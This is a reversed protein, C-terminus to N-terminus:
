QPGLEPAQMGMMGAAQAAPGLATAPTAPVMLMQGGPVMQGPVPRCRLHRLGPRAIQMTPGVGGLAAVSAAHVGTVLPVHGALPLTGHGRAEDPMEAAPVFNAQRAPTPLPWLHVMGAESGTVFENEGAACCSIAGEVRSRYKSVCGMPNPGAHWCFVGGEADVSVLHAGSRSVSLALGVALCLIFPHRRLCGGCYRSKRDIHENGRPPAPPASVQTIHAHHNGAYKRIPAVPAGRPDPQWIVSDHAGPLASPADPHLSRITYLPRVHSGSVSYVIITHQPPRAPLSAPRLLPTLVPRRPHPPLCAPCPCPVPLAPCPCPVPLAPCPCPLAPCTAIPPSPSSVDTASSAMRTGSADFALSTIRGGHVDLEDSPRHVVINEPDHYRTVDAHVPWVKLNFDYGASCMLKGDPSIALANVAGCHGQWEAVRRFQSPGTMLSFGKIPYDTGGAIILGLSPHVALSQVSGQCDFYAVRRLSACDYLHVRYDKSASVIMMPGQPPALLAVQTVADTHGVFEQVLQPHTLQLINHIRVCGLPGSDAMLSFAPNVALAAVGLEQIASSGLQRDKEQEILDATSDALIAEASMSTAEKVLPRTHAAVAWIIFRSDTASSLLYQEENLLLLSRIDGKHGLIDRMNKGSGVDWVQVVVAVRTSPFSIFQIRKQGLGVDWVKIMNDRAGSFLTIGDRSWLLATVDGRHGDLQTVQLCVISKDARRQARCSPALTRTDWIKIASDRGASALMNTKESWALCLVPAKHGTITELMRYDELVDWVRVTSDKSGSILATGGYMWLLVEIPGEHADPTATAQQGAAETHILIKKRLAMRTLDWIFIGEVGASVLTPETPHFLLSTVSFDHGMLVNHISFTDDTDSKKALYIGNSGSVFALMRGDPSWVVPTSPQIGLQLLASKCGLRPDDVPNRPVVTVDPPLDAGTTPPAPRPSPRRQDDVAGYGTTAPTAAALQYPTSTAGGVQPQSEM